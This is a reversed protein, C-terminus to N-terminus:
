KERFSKDVSFMHFFTPSTMTLHDVLSALVYHAAKFLSNLDGDKNRELSVPLFILLLNSVLADKNKKNNSDGCVM